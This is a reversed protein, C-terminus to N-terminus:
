EGKEECAQIFEEIEALAKRFKVADVEIPAKSMSFYNGSIHYKGNTCMVFVRMNELNMSHNVEEKIKM